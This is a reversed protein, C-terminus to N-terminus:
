EPPSAIKCWGQNRLLQLHYINKIESKPAYHRVKSLMGIARALKQIVLKSQYHGNLYKDLYIGLYKIQDSLKLKYGNLRVNWKWNIKFGKKQFIIMETKTSNLSIKNALLWNYLLKLDINLQKQVKKPSTNINLLHTDDAFHYSRSYAIAAHLDNIYILFLLPGLVSGQPVGHKM